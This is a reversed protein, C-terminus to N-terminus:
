KIYSLPNKKASGVIVEFHLHPGTSWGTSGMAMITQGKVVTDGMGVYLKSAHAYRTKVGNGHNILINNGYGRLVGSFEVTGSEAAYIPTGKPGAIDLALHRWSYYQSIRRVGAPWFMGAGTAAKSPPVFLKSIPSVKPVPDTDYNSRSVYPSAKKGGPIILKQGIKIDNVDFLNNYGIIKDAEISYKNAISGVTEGRVVKHTVGTVPLIELLDGARIVSNIGLGNQWLITEVSVNFKAAITSINEGSQVTYVVIDRGVVPQFIENKEPSIPEIINPKVVAAGGETLTSLGSSLQDTSDSSEDSVYKQGEVAATEGLYSLIKGETSYVQTEETLEELEEKSIVSYIITQEGFGEERLDQARISSQVVALGILVVLVHILYTKNLIYFVKSKAPTYISLGKMRLFHYGKYTPFILLGFVGSIIYSFFRQFFNLRRGLFAGFRVSFRLIPALITVLAKKFNM